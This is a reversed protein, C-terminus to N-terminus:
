QVSNRLSSLQFYSCRRGLLSTSMFFQISRQPTIRLTSLPALKEDPYEPIETPFM